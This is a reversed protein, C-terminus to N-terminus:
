TKPLQMAEYLYRIGRAAKVNIINNQFINFVKGFDIIFYYLSDQLFM